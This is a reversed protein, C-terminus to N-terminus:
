CTPPPCVGWIEWRHREQAQTHLPPSLAQGVRPYKQLYGRGMVQSCM